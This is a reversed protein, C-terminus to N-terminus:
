RENGATEAARAAFRKRLMAAAADLLRKDVTTESRVILGAYRPIIELIEERSLKYKVDVQCTANLREIMEEDLLEAVLVKAKELPEM